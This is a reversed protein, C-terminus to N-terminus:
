PGVVPAVNAITATTTSSSSAGRADTVLLTVTHTGNDEYKHTAAATSAHPSGDGFNWDYTLADGDADSATATFSVITGEDAAYPGGNSAITPPTNVTAHFSGSGSAGDKDTVSVTVTYVGGQAYRHSATIPGPQTATSR